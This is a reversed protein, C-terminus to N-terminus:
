VLLIMQNSMSDFVQAVNPCAMYKGSLHTFRKQAYCLGVEDYQCDECDKSICWLRRANLWFCVGGLWGVYRYPWAMYYLM